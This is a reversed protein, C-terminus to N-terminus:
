FCGTLLGMVDCYQEADHQYHFCLQPRRNRSRVACAQVSLAGIGMKISVSDIGELSSVNVTWM